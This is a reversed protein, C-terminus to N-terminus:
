IKRRVILHAVMAIELWGHFLVISLYGARTATPEFLGVVPIALTLGVALAFGLAGLDRRLVATSRTFTLATRRQAFPETSPVLRVWVAYHVAQAFAFILVLRLGLVPSLGPALTASMQAMDLGAASGSLGGFALIAPELLGGALLLIAALYVAILGLWRGPSGGRWTWAIWLGFAILNHLHGLTLAALELRLLTAM